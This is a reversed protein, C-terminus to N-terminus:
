VKKVSYAKRWGFPGNRGVGGIPIEKERNIKAGCGFV